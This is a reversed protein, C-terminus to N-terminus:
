DVRKENAKYTGPVQLYNFLSTDWLPRILRSVNIGFGIYYTQERHDPGNPTFQDYGRTFFGLHIELYRLPDFEIFDFGEAKIALLYKHSEYDTFGDARFDGDTSPRYEVRLDFKRGIDPYRGLVYAAAAGATNAIMDEYAFGFDSFSDGLEMLGMLGFGSATGYLYSDTDSYGASRYFSAFLHSAAYTTWVHGLKDAGGESTDREFWGESQAQPSSQFYDWNVIGWGIIGLAAAANVAVATGDRGLGLGSLFGNYEGGGPADDAATGASAEPVEPESDPPAALPPDSWDVEPPADPVLALRSPPPLPAAADDPSLLTIGPADGMSDGRSERAQVQSTLAAGSLALVLALLIRM